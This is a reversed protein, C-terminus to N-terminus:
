DLELLILAGGSKKESNLDAITFWAAGDIFFVNNSDDSHGKGGTYGNWTNCRFLCDRGM